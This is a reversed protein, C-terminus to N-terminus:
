YPVEVTVTDRRLLLTSVCVSTVVVGGVTAWVWWKKYWPVTPPRPPPPLAPVTSPQSQSASAPQTAPRPPTFLTRLTEVVRQALVTFDEAVRDASLVRTEVAVFTGRLASFVSARLTTGERAPEEELFVAIDAGSLSCLRVIEALGPAAGSSQQSDHAWRTRTEEFFARVQPPYSKDPRVDPAITLARLFEEQARPRQGQHLAVAGLALHLRAVLSPDYFRVLAEDLAELARRYTTEALGWQLSIEAARGAETLTAADELARRTSPRRRIEELM